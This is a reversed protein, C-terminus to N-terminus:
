RCGTVPLAATGGGEAGRLLVHLRNLRNIKELMSPLFHRQCGQPGHCPWRRRPFCTGLKKQLQHEQSGGELGWGSGEARHSGTEATPWGLQLHKM